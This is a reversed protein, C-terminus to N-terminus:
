EDWGSVVGIQETDLLIKVFGYISFVSLIAVIIMMSNVSM